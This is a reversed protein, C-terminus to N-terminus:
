FIKPDAPKEKLFQELGKASSLISNAREKLSKVQDEIDKRLYSVYYGKSTAILPIQSTVRIYNCLKRLRAGTLKYGAARMAKVIEPEKVPNAKTRKRFSKVLIPVMELEDRTLDFTIEEFNTIMPKVNQEPSLIRVQPPGRIVM